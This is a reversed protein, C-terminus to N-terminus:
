DQTDDEVFAAELEPLLTNDAHHQKQNHIYDITKHKDRMALSFVGYHSQWAFWTDPKLTQSILRSSGGKIHMMLDSMSITPSMNVLLHMHDAIGGIALLDCRDDVCVEEIYRYLLREIDETLLPLKDRTAWVFHLLVNVKNRRRKAM